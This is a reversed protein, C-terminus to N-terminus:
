EVWHGFAVRSRRWWRGLSPMQCGQENICHCAPFSGMIREARGGQARTCIPRCSPDLPNSDMDLLIPIGARLIHIGACLGELSKCQSERPDLAPIPTPLLLHLSSLEAAVAAGSFPAATVHGPAPLTLRLRKRASRTSSLPTNKARIRTARALRPQPTSFHYLLPTRLRHGHVSEM